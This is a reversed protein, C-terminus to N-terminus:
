ILVVNPMKERQKKRGERFSQLETFFANGLIKTCSLCETFEWQVSVIKGVLFSYLLTDNNNKDIIFVFDNKWHELGRMLEHM